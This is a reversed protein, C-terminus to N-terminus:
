ALEIIQQMANAWTLKKATELGCSIRYDLEPTSDGRKKALVEQYVKQMGDAFAQPSPNGVIAKPHPSWYQEQAMAKRTGTQTLIANDNNLFQKQGGHDPAVVPLGMALAELFPMGWGESATMLAFADAAAYLSAISKLRTSIIKIEPINAGYKKKVRSLDKTIDVEFGKKEDGPKFVKTKLILSVDDQASFTSCYVDLLKGIQKRYHPEAVCLFKVKKESNIKLPKVEPHFVDVDVGHPVVVIKESPCGNREMMDAVYQSPPLMYDVIHYFKSWHAPMISSEYAYIAMKKKSSQVFRKPFNQPVTYTLDIDYVNGERLFKKSRLESRIGKQSDFYKMGEYGNTSIFDVHHGKQEAAYLLEDIVVSWSLDPWGWSYSRIKM